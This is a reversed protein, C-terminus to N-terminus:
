KLEQWLLDFASDADSPVGDLVADLMRQKEAIIRRQRDEMTGRAVLHHCWVPETTGIRHCRDEAQNVEGPRWSSEVFAVTSAATLTLGTGAAQINGVFLRCDPDAQFRDVLAARKGTPVSGDILVPNWRSLKETLGHLVDTHHGFVVLKEGSEELWDEIWNLAARMKLKAALRLLYGVKAMAEVKAARRAKGEDIGRLWALFDEEAREYEAPDSLPLPVTDRLKPPLDPLCEIKTRRVMVTSLLLQNLEEANSAGDFKVGWPTVKPDCFRYLFDWRRPFEDPRLLHLVSFLERPRNVMPTGSLALVNPVGRCLQVVAATRKAKPSSCYHCEDLIVTRPRAARLVPLWVALVDYNVVIAIEGDVTRDAKAGELVTPFLGGERGEREWVWKVSAPCVVVAPWAERHARLWATAMITKGLGPEAALLTRTGADSSFWEMENVCEAQFRFLEKM